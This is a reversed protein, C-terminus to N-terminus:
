VFGRKGKGTPLIQRLEPDILDVPNGRGDSASWSRQVLSRRLTM